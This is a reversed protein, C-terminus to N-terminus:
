ENVQGAVPLTTLRRVIGQPYRHRLDALAAFAGGSLLVLVSTAYVWQLSAIHAHFLIVVVLVLVNFFRM